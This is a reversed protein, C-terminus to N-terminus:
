LAKEWACQHLGPCITVVFNECNKERFHKGWDPFLKRSNSSVYGMCCVVNCFPQLFTATVNRHLMAVNCTIHRLHPLFRGIDSGTCCQMFYKQLTESIDYAIRGCRKRSKVAVKEYRKPSKVAVKECRKQSKIATTGCRKPSKVTVKKCRKPSKVAITECRKPSKVAINVCSKPSKVAINVCSKPSKVAINM